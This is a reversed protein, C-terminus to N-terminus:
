RVTFAIVSSKTADTYDPFERGETEPNYYWGSLGPYAVAYLQEGPVFGERDLYEDFYNLDIVETEAMVTIVKEWTGPTSSVTNDRGIFVNVRRNCPLVDGAFQVRLFNRLRNTGGVTDAYIYMTDPKHTPRITDIRIVLSDFHEGVSWDAITYAPLVNLRTEPIPPITARGGGVFQFCCLKATTYGGKTFSFDYTGAPLDDLSWFGDQDTTATYSTGEVTVTVDSADNIQQSCEDELHVFGVLKGKLRNNPDSPDVPDSGCGASVLFLVLLLSRLLPLSKM